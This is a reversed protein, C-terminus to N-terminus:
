LHLSVEFRETKKRTKLPKKGVRVRDAAVSTELIALERSHRRATIDEERKYEQKKMNERQTENKEEKM